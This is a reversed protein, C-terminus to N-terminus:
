RGINQMGSLLAEQKPPSKLVDRVPICSGWHFLGLEPKYTHVPLHVHLGLESFDRSIDTYHRVQLFQSHM